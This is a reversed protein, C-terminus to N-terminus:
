PAVPDNGLSELRAALDPLTELLLFPHCAGAAVVVREERPDPGAFSLLEADLSGAGGRVFFRIGGLHMRGRAKAADRVADTYPKLVDM